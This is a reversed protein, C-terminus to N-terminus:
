NNLKLANSTKMVSSAIICSNQRWFGAQSKKIRKTTLGTQLLIIIRLSLFLHSPWLWSGVSVKIGPRCIPLIVPCLAALHSTCFLSTVWLSHGSSCIIANSSIAHVQICGLYQPCWLLYYHSCIWFILLILLTQVTVPSTAVHTICRLERLPLWSPGWVTTPSNLLCLPALFTQDSKSADLITDQM